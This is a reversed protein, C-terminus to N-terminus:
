EQGDSETDEEWDPDDEGVSSSRSTTRSTAQSTSPPTGGIGSGGTGVQVAAAVVPPPTPTRTPAAAATQPPPSRPPPPRMKGDEEELINFEEDTLPFQRKIFMAVIPQPGAISGGHLNLGAIDNVQTQDQHPQLSAMGTALGPSACRSSGQSAESLNRNRNSRFTQSSTRRRNGRLSDPMPDGDWSTATSGAPTAELNVQHMQGPTDGAQNVQVPTDGAQSSGAPSVLMPTGAGEDQQPSSPRTQVVIDEVRDIFGPSLPDPTNAESSAETICSDLRRLRNARTRQGGHVRGLPTAWRIREEEEAKAHLL